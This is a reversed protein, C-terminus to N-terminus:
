INTLAARFEQISIRGDRNRDYTLIFANVDKETFHKGLDHNWKAFLNRAEQHSIYGDHNRDISAFLQNIM